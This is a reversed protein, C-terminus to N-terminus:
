LRFCVATMSHVYYLTHQLVEAKTSNAMMVGQHIINIEVCPPRIAVWADMWLSSINAPSTSLAAATFGIGMLARVAVIRTLLHTYM